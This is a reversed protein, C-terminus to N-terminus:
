DLVPLIIVRLLRGREGQLFKFAPEGDFDAFTVMVGFMATQLAARRVGGPFHGLRETARDFM